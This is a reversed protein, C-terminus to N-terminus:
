NWQWYPHSYALRMLEDFAIRREAVDRIENILPKSSDKNNNEELLIEIIRPHVKIYRHKTRRMVRLNKVM